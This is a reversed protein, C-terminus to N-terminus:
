LQNVTEATVQSALGGETRRRRMNNDASSGLQECRSGRGCLHRLVYFVVDPNNIIILGRFLLNKSM